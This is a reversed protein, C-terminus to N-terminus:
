CVLYLHHVNLANKLHSLDSSGNIQLTTKITNKTNTKMTNNYFKNKHSNTFGHKKDNFILSM